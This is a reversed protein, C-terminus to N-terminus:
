ALASVLEIHFINAVNFHFKSSAGDNLCILSSSFDNSSVSLYVFMATVAPITNIGLYDYIISIILSWIRLGVFVIPILTFKFDVAQLALRYRQKSWFQKM